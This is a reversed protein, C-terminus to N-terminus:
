YVIMDLITENKATNIFVFFSILSVFLVAMLLYIAIEKSNAAIISLHSSVFFTDSVFAIALWDKDLVKQLDNSNPLKNKKYEWIILFLKELENKKAIPWQRYAEVGNNFTQVSMKSTFLEDLQAFANKYRNSNEESTTPVQNFESKLYDYDNAYKGVDRYLASATDVNKSTFAYIMFGAISIWCVAMISAFIRIPNNIKFKM